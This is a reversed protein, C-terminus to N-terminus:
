KTQTQTQAANEERLKQEQRMENEYEEISKDLPTGNFGRGFNCVRNGCMINRAVIAPDYEAEDAGELAGYIQFYRGNSIYYYRSGQNHLPDTPLHELYNTGSFIDPLPDFQWDCPVAQPVGQSDVGGYCAVIKGDKSPPFSSHSKQYEILADHITRMDNKRQIDRGRRLSIQMNGYTVTSIVGLVIAVFILEKKTFGLIKM